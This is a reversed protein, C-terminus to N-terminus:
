SEFDDDNLSFDYNSEIELTELQEWGQQETPNKVQADKSWQVNGSSIGSVRLAFDEPHTSLRHAEEYTILDSMLLNLLSQDFNQTGNPDNGEELVDHIDSTRQPDEIMEKVRHNTILVEVAPVFGNGDKRRALRQSVVANLVGALQRRVQAQEFPNFASLIRNVSEQADLTHLSSLVLHGTEAASLAVAITEPDRMEGILIVDPDQRLAARLATAFSPTDTGVERQSIISRRDRILFEIPDEITIIHKNKHQNIQQVLAALTSSKGSGTAGTILVLGREADALKELSKPLHLEDLTPVSHPINRIVMRLTGRQFFINIRFRGVGSIGYGLDIEKNKELTGIQQPDLISHAMTLLEDHSLKKLKSSLPRLKGHKRIVPVLGAKLHVDSANKHFAMKLIEILTM